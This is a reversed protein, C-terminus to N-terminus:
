ALLKYIPEMNRNILHPPFLWPFYPSLIAQVYGNFRRLLFLEFHWDEFYRLHDLFYVNRKWIELFQLITQDLFKLWFYCGQYEVPQNNIFESIVNREYGKFHIFAIANALSEEIVRGFDYKYYPNKKLILM